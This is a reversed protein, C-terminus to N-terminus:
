EGGASLTANVRPAGRGRRVIPPHRGADRGLLRRSGVGQDLAGDFVNAEGFVARARRAELAQWRDYRRDGIAVVWTTPVAPRAQALAPAVWAHAAGLSEDDGDRMVGASTAGEAAHHNIM